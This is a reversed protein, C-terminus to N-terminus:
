ADTRTEIRGERADIKWGLLLWLKRVRNYIDLHKVM